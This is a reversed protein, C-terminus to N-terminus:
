APSTRRVDFRSGTRVYDVAGMRGVLGLRDLDLHFDSPDLLGAEVSVHVVEGVVLFHNGVTHIHTTRCEAAIPSGALRPAAVKVGPLPRLGTLDYESDGPPLPKAAETAAWAQQEVLVNVTFEGTGGDRRPRANRCSDKESGDSRRGACFILAMPEYGVATFYSFPAINATGSLSVTSVMAIPRPGVAWLLLHERQESSLAGPDLEVMEPEKM